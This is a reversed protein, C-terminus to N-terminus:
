GGILDIRKGVGEIVARDYIMKSVALDLAAFGVTKFITIESNKERGTKEKNIIEGLEADIRDSGVVKEQMPIILDGAEELAAKQNDVVVKDARKVIDEDLERMDPKYSGIGNIHTGPKVKQGPFVPVSSVTATVIIDAEVAEAPNEAAWFSVASGLKERMERIYAQAARPNPDYVIVKTIKRVSAVAELQTRAQRGAGFIAVSSADECALMMTAVGSAAGTRLATLYAGDMISLTEGTKEDQLLMVSQITDLDRSPNDLFVSVIKVGLSDLEAIRGPMFLMVGKHDDVDIQTRLPINAGGSSSAAFAQKAAEIAEKMTVAQQMDKQSIALIM